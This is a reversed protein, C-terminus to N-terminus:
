RSAALGAPSYTFKWDSYKGAGAFVEDRKSFAGTKVPEDESKSYVGMIGGQPAEVLGWDAKGTVPDPYLRRLYRQVSPMRSDQLLDELKQPYRKAGGPSREYFARIADRYQDGTFLLEVEKERQQAHSALEGISALVLGSVAIVILLALYTFGAQKSIPALCRNRARGARM